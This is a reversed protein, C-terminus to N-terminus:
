GKSGIFHFGPKLTQKGCIGWSTTGGVGLLGPRQQLGVVAVALVIQRGVLGVEREHLVVDGDGLRPPARQSGRVRLQGCSFPVQHGLPKM